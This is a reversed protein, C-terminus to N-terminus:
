VSFSDFLYEKLRDKKFLVRNGVRISYTGEVDEQGLLALRKVGINFVLAAEQVTLMEKRWVPIDIAKM